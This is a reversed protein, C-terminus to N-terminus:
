PAEEVVFGVKSSLQLSTGASDYRLALQRGESNDLLM